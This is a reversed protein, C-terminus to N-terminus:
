EYDEAIDDEDSDDEAYEEDSDDEAINDEDSDDEDIDDEDSDDEAYEENSQEVDIVFVENWAKQTNCYTNEDFTYQKKKDVCQEDFLTDYLNCVSNFNYLPTSMEEEFSSCPVKINVSETSDCRKLMNGCSNNTGFWNVEPFTNTGEIVTSDDSSFYNDFLTDKSISIM